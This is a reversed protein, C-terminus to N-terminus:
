LPSCRCWPGCRAAHRGARPACGWVALLRARLPAYPLTRDAEFCAGRLVAYGRRAAHATAEAVLRSKGRGADGALLAVGGTRAGAAAIREILLGLERERGILPTPVALPMM